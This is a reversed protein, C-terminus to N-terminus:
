KRIEPYKDLIAEIADDEKDETRTQNHIDGLKDDISKLRKSIKGLASSINSLLGGILILGIIVAWGIM